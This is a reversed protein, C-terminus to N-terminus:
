IKKLNGCCVKGQNSFIGESSKWVEMGLFYHMLGIAKMKFEEDLNKKYDTIHKENRMLFMDDVYLLLIIPEDDM